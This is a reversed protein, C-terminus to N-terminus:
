PKGSYRLIYNDRHGRLCAKCCIGNKSEGKTILVGHRGVRLRGPYIFPGHHYRAGPRMIWLSITRGESYGGDVVTIKLPAIHYKKLLYQKESRTIRQTTGPLDWLSGTRDDGSQDYAIICGWSHPEKKLIAAFGNLRSAEDEPMTFEGGLDLEDYLFNDNVDSKEFVTPAPVPPRAGVHVIWLETTLDERRGGDIAVVRSPDTGRREALYYKTRLALRLAKGPPDRRGGYVIIYAQAGPANQLAIAFNDLLALEDDARINGYSDFKRSAISLGNYVACSATNRCEPAFGRVEVTATISSLAHGPLKVIITATDQGSTISGESVTWKFTPSINPGGDKVSAQFKVAEGSEIAVDPCTVTVTPCNPGMQQGAHTLYPLILPIAILYSAVVLRSALCQM